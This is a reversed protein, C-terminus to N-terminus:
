SHTHKQRKCFIKQFFSFISQILLNCCALTGLTIFAQLRRQHSKAPVSYLLQLVEPTYDISILGQMGPRPWPSSFNLLPNHIKSQGLRQSRYPMIVAKRSAASLDIKRAKKELPLHPIILLILNFEGFSTPAFRLDRGLPAAPCNM